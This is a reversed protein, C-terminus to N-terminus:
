RIGMCNAYYTTTAAPSVESDLAAQMLKSFNARAGLTGLANAETGGSTFVIDGPAAGILRAVSARADALARSGAAGMGHASSPNAYLEAAASTMAQLAEPAPPTSAAHDLYIM